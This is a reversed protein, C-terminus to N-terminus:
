PMSVFISADFAVIVVDFIFFITDHIVTGLRLVFSWTFLIKQCEKNMCIGLWHSWNLLNYFAATVVVM